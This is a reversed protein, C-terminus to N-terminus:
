INNHTPAILNFVYSAHEASGEIRVKHSLMAVQPNLDGAVIKMLDAESLDITCAAEGEAGEVSRLEAGSWDITYPAGTPKMIFRVKGTLHMKLNPSAFKAREPIADLFLEQATRPRIKLVHKRPAEEAETEDDEENGPESQVNSEVDEQGPSAEFEDGEEEDLDEDDGDDDSDGDEEIEDEFSTDDDDGQEDGDGASAHMKPADETPDERKVEDGENEAKDKGGGFFSRIGM